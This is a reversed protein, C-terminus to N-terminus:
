GRRNKKDGSRGKRGDRGAGQRVEYEEYAKVIKQVLPHRVVDKATLTIFAIDDIKGLVREAVDLGSVTGEALDKQTKDGTVVVKSGFGIRTLFMKMQAPTTNQAEDLIIFANDLTRGRMYALPAVEILGKEMNKQFAEAGMISYLADYLPRLYPDIKSQLDGPLFGLKEGAEIAPRTLIIRSIEEKKFSTVAKAIALYTKGTGAPGTGFVIMKEDIADVYKKQGVTKPRVPKGQVTHCIVDRDVATIFEGTSDLVSEMTYIVKQDDITEGRDALILLERILAAGREASMETGEILIRDARISIDVGLKKEIFRINKDFAGAVEQLTSNDYGKTDITEIM